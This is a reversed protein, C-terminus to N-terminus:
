TAPNQVRLNCTECRVADLLSSASGYVVGRSALDAALAEYAARLVRRPAFGVRVSRCRLTVSAPRRSLALARRLLPAMQAPPTSAVGPLAGLADQWLAALAARRDAAEVPDAEAESAAGGVTPPPAFRRSGFYRLLETLTGFRLSVDPLYAAAECM